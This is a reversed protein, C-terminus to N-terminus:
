GIQLASKAMEKTTNVATVNAEYARSASMMDTMESVININPMQVYGNEDADPHNPKHMLKPQKNSERIESVEVGNGVSQQQNTSTQNINGMEEKLRAAFVPMKRRYPGGDPTRTTNVNAINNSITDMRLRQSTLGSASIDLGNFLSM